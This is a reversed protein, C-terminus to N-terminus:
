TTTKAAIHILAGRHYTTRLMKYKQVFTGLDLERDLLQQHFNESEEDTKNMSEQVRQLLAAPSNSKLTEYRQKELENLKELAAALETTRIIRCQNRLEMIRPEKELNGRSLQLTEERLEDRLNNQIKVQELSHLFQRFAEKDSSLKRFEDVSKDKLAAIVGAAEAPSVYSPPQLRETPRPSSYSSLSTGSPTAPRSTSPSSLVSPPYWSPSSGDQPRSQSQQEQSGWFKFMPLHDLIGSDSIWSLFSVRFNEPTIKLSFPPRRLHRFYEPVRRVQVNRQSVPLAIALYNRIVFSM